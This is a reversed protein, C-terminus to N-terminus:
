PCLQLAPMEGAYVATIFSVRSLWHQARCRVVQDSLNGCLSLASCCDFAVSRLCSGCSTTQKVTMWTRSTCIARQWSTRSKGRTRCWLAVTSALVVVLVSQGTTCKKLITLLLDLVCISHTAFSHLVLKGHLTTQSLSVLWKGIHAALYAVPLRFVCPFM